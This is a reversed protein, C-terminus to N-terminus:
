SRISEPDHTLEVTLGKSRMFALRREHMEDRVNLSYFVTARGTCAHPAQALHSFFLRDEGDGAPFAACSLLHVMPLLENKRFALGSPRVYGGFRKSFCGKGVGVSELEDVCIGEGRIGDAYISYAFAWAKNQIATIINACHDSALWDDDDLIMVVESDALFVLASKMSGSFYNSHVGGHRISTSYGVDLWLLSINKPCEEQLTQLLGEARNHPDVDVGILIQIRGEFNQAFVSRVSRLLSTRCITAIVVAM